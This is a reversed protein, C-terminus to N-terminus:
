EIYEEENSYFNCKIFLKELDDFNKVTTINDKMDLVLTKNSEYFNDQTAKFIDTEGFNQM